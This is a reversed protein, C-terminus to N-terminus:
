FPCRGVASLDWLKTEMSKVVSKLMHMIKYLYGISHGDYSAKKPIKKIKVM